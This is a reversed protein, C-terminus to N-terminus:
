EEVISQEDIYIPSEEIFVPDSQISHLYARYCNFWYATCCIVCGIGIVGAIIQFTHKLNAQRILSNSDLERLYDAIIEQPLGFHEVLKDYTIGPNSKCFDTVSETVTHLYQRQKKGYIPFLHKLDRLYRKCIKNM